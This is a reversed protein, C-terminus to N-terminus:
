GLALAALVRIGIDLCGDDFSFSPSLLLNAPEETDGGCGLPVVAGPLAEFYGSLGTSFATPQVERLHQESVM